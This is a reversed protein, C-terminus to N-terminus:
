AFRQGSHETRLREALHWLWRARLLRRERQWRFIEQVFIRGVATLVHPDRALLLRLEFPVPLVWRRLPM